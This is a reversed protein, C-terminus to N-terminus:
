AGCPLYCSPSTTGLWGGEKCHASNSELERFYQNFKFIFKSSIFPISNLREWWKDSILIHNSADEENAASNRMATANKILAQTYEHEVTNMVNFFYTREPLRGKSYRDPFYKMFKGNQQMLPWLEKIALEDYLPATCFRVESMPLFDKRDDLM